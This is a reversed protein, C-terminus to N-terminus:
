KGNSLLEQYKALVETIPGFYKQEGQWLVLGKNCFNRLQGAQHSVIVMTVKQRKFENMKAFCKEQFPADGVALIEDILLIQPKVHVAISFGLRMFMGSSYHKLPTDIFEELEAFGIIDGIREDIERKKLGLISGNIYINERGTLEFHFGAGLEILPAVRGNIEVKGKTPVTVGAILKLMTSKGSGNPGVIGLVDGEDLEFNIDKLAWFKEYKRIRVLDILAEKLLKKGKQYEKSVNEFVISKM